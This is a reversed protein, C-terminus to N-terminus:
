ALYTAWYLDECYKENDVQPMGCDASANTVEGFVAANKKRQTKEMSTQRAVVAAALSPAPCGVELAVQVSWLGTGKSGIADGAIDALYGSDSEASKHQAVEITIDLMYSDLDGIAKWSRLVSAIDDGSGM